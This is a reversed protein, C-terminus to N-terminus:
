WSASWYLSSSKVSKLRPCRESSSRDFPSISKQCIQSRMWLSRFVSFSIGSSNSSMSFISASM